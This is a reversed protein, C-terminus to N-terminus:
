DSETSIETAVLFRSVMNYAAVVGIIEVVKQESDMLEALTEITEDAVSIEHTMQRTLELVAMELPEFLTRDIPEHQLAAIQEETGGAAVYIPAHQELEYSARNLVAVYCIALEALKSSVSLDARVKGLFMNWGEAFPPSHLLMRDLKLLEGGRRRRIAEVLARPEDIDASTYSIRRM